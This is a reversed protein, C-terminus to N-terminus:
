QYIQLSDLLSDWVKLGESWSIDEESSIDMQLTITRNNIFDYGQWLFEKKLYEDYVGEKGKCGNLTRNRLRIIHHKYISYSEKLSLWYAWKELTKKMWTLIFPASVFDEYYYGKKDMRVSLRLRHDGINEYSYNVHAALHKVKLKSTDVAYGEPLYFIKKEKKTDLSKQLEKYNGVIDKYEEHFILLDNPRTDIRNTLRIFTNGSQFIGLINVRSYEDYEKYKSFAETTLVGNGLQEKKTAVIYPAYNLTEVRDKDAQAKNIIGFEVDSIRFPYTFYQDLIFSNPIDVSYKGFYLKKKQQTIFNTRGSQKKLFFTTYLLDHFIGLVAFSFLAFVVLVSLWKVVPVITIGHIGLFYLLGSILAFVAHVGLFFYIYAFLVGPTADGTNPKQTVFSHVLFIIAALHLVPLFGYIWHVVSCLKITLFFTLPLTGLSIFFGIILIVIEM